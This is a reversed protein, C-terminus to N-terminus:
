RNNEVEEMRGDLPEFSELTKKISETSISQSVLVTVACLMNEVNYEGRLRSSIPLTVSPMRITFDVGKERYVVDKARIQANDARIGYTMVADSVEGTFRDAEQMDLNVVSVKRM